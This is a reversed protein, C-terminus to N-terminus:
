LSLPHLDDSSGAAVTNHDVFTGIYAVMLCM